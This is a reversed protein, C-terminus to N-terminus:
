RPAVTSTSPVETGRESTPAKRLRLPWLPKGDLTFTTRAHGSRIYSVGQRSNWRLVGSHGNRRVLDPPRQADADHDASFGVGHGPVQDDQSVEDVPPDQEAAQEIGPPYDLFPEFQPDLVRLAQRGGRGRAALRQGVGDQVVAPLVAKQGHRLGVGGRDDARAPLRGIWQRRVHVQGGHRRDVRHVWLGPLVPLEAAVVHKELALVQRGIAARKDAVQVDRRERGPRGQDGDRRVGGAALAHQRDRLDGATTAAQERQVGPGTQRHDAPVARNAELREDIQKGAARPVAHKV